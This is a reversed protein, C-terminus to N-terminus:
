GLRDGRDDYGVVDDNAAGRAKDLAPGHWPDLSAAVRGAESASHTTGETRRTRGGGAAGERERDREVRAFAGAASIEM